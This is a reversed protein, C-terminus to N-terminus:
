YCYYSIKGYCHLTRCLEEILEARLKEPDIVEAKAGFLM